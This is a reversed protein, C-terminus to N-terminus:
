TTSDLHRATHNNNNNNSGMAAMSGHQWTTGFGGAIVLLELSRMVANPHDLADELVVAANAGPM